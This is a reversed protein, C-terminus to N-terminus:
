KVAPSFFILLFTCKTNCGMRWSDCLFTFLHLCIETTKNRLFAPSQRKVAAVGERPSACNRTCHKFQDLASQVIHYIRRFRDVIWQLHLSTSWDDRTSFVYAFVGYFRKFRCQASICCFLESITSLSSMHGVAIFHSRASTRQPASWDDSLRSLNLSACVVKIDFSKGNKRQCLTIIHANIPFPLAIEVLQSFLGRHHIWVAFAKLWISASLQFARKNSQMEELRLEFKHQRHWGSMSAIRACRSSEACEKPIASWGAMEYAYRLYEWESFRAAFPNNACVKNASIARSSTWNNQKNQKNKRLCSM